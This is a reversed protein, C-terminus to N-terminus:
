THLLELLILHGIHKLGQTLHQFYIPLYAKKAWGELESTIYVFYLVHVYFLM